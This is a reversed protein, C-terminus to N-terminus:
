APVLVRAAAMGAFLAVVSLVVSALAYGASTLVEGREYLTVVDLSFSSFTTFGGLVGIMLFPALHQGGKRAIAVVLVGMLASGLINVTLTGWPFGIGFLTRTAVGVLYRATAGIAGGLAVQLATFFM